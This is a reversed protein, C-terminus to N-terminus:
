APAGSDFYAAHQDLAEVIALMLARERIFALTAGSRSALAQDLQAFRAVSLHRDGHAFAELAGDISACLNLRRGVRRLRIIATGVSMAALLEARQLPEAEDPMVSLRGYIRSQWDHVTRPVPTAAMHRLDRLTLKLLRRTRFAPSLPPVVLYSLAGACSGAVLALATNCYQSLDYTMSNTPALLPMLNQAMAIFIVRQWTQAMLAGAPVLYLGIVISFGVFTEVRPVVAFLMLGAILAALCNGITYSLANYYVQGGQPAFLIVVLAAWTIATAGNPWATVIWFTEVAGITLLARAGNILSPLWDRFRLDFASGPPRAADHTLLALGNLARSIGALAEATRFALLRLSPTDAGSILVNRVATKCTQRLDAPSSLWFEADVPAAQLEQPVRSLVKDSERRAQDEPLRVLCAAVARWGSLAAFLGDLASQLVPSYYRLQSSEGIAEDFAPEFAIVRRLLERRLIQTVPFKSGSKVLTNLFPGTIEAILGALSAALRHRARGFDTGALVISACVIGICIESARTVALTFAAESSGGTAGLQDNAIIAVTYGALAASYAAFNRLLTSAFACGAGWLALGMLFLTRDQPFCATLVVVAAAGVLTGIMRYWGKRLSAGLSPQCVIAASTGAWYPNDLQLWFAVYLALTVSAWLRLGFLLPGTVQLGRTFRDARFIADPRSLPGVRAFKGKTTRVRDSM